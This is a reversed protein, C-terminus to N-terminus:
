LTVKRLDDITKAAAIRPDATVDRLAQKKAVIDATPKGLELARMFEVDLEALKPARERRLKAKHIECAVDMRHKLDHGIADRFECRPPRASEAIPEWSVVSGAGNEVEWRAVETAADADGVLHMFSVGGDARKIAILSM